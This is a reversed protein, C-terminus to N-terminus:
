DQLYDSSVDSVSCYDCVVVVVVVVVVPLQVVVEWWPEGGSVVGRGGAM